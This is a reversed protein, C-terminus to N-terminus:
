LPVGNFQPGKEHDYPIISGNPFAEWETSLRHDYPQCDLIQPYMDGGLARGATCVYDDGGPNTVIAAGDASWGTEEPSYYGSGADAAVPFSLIALVAVAVCFTIIVFLETNLQKM